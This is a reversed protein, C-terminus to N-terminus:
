IKKISKQEKIELKEDLKKYLDRNELYIGCYENARNLEEYIFPSISMKLNEILIVTRIKNSKLQNFGYKLDLLSFEQKRYLSIVNEIMEDNCQVFSLFNVKLKLSSSILFNFTLKKIENFSEKNNNKIVKDINKKLIRQRDNEKLLLLFKYYNDNKYNDNELLEELVHRLMIYSVLKEKMLDATLNVQEGSILYHVINNENDDKINKLTRDKKILEIVERDGQIVKRLFEKDKKM